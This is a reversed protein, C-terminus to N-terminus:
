KKCPPLWEWTSTGDAENLRYIAHGKKVTEAMFEKTAQARGIHVGYISAVMITIAAIAATIFFEGTRM